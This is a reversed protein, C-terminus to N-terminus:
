GNPSTAVTWCVISCSLVFVNDTVLPLRTIAAPVGNMDELFFSRATSPSEPKTAPSPSPSIITTKWATSLSRSRRRSSMAATRPTGMPMLMPRTPRWKGKECGEIAPM